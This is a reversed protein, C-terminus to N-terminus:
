GLLALRKNEVKSFVTPPNAYVTVGFFRQSELSITADENFYLGDLVVFVLSKGAGERVRVDDHVNIHLTPDIQIAEKRM